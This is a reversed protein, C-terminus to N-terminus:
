SYNRNSAILSLMRTKQCARDAWDPVWTSGLVFFQRNPLDRLITNNSTLVRYFRRHFLKALRMHNGHFSAPEAFMLSVQARVGRMAPGYLWWVPNAILHDKTDLDGVSKGVLRTPMGLPWELDALAVRVLPGRFRLGYPIFGIAPAPDLTDKDIYPDESILM